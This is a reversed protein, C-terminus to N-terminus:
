YPGSWDTYPVAKTAMTYKRQDFTLSIHQNVCVGPWVYEVYWELQVCELPIPIVM